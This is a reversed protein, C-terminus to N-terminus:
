RSAHYHNCLVETYSNHLRSRSLSLYWLSVLSCKLHCSTLISSPLLQHSRTVERASPYKHIDMRKYPTHRAVSHCLGTLRSPLLCPTGAPCYAVKLASIPVLLHDPKLHVCVTTHYILGLTVCSVAELFEKDLTHSYTLRQSAVVETCRSWHLDDWDEYWLIALSAILTSSHQERPGPGPDWQLM